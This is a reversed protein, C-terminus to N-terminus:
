KVNHISKFGRLTCANYGRNLGCRSLERKDYPCAWRYSNTASSATSKTRPKKPDDDRQDDPPYSDRDKYGRKLARGSSDQQNTGGAADTSASSWTNTSARDSGTGHSRRDRAWQMISYFETTKDRVFEQLYHKWEDEGPANSSDDCDPDGCDSDGSDDGAEVCIDTIEDSALADAMPLTQKNIEPRSIATKSGDRFYMNASIWVRKVPAISLV